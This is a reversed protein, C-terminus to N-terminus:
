EVWGMAKSITMYDIYDLYQVIKGADNFRFITMGNSKFSKGSAPTGDPWDGTNTGEFTWEFAIANGSVIPPRAPDKSPTWKCDPVPDMFGDVIEKRYNKVGVVPDGGSMVDLFWVDDAVLTEIKEREHASWAATFEDVLKVLDAM